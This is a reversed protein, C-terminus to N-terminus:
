EVTTMGCTANQEIIEDLKHAVDIAFRLCDQKSDEVRFRKGRIEYPRFRINPRASDVELMIISMDKSAKKVYEDTTVKFLTRQGSVSNFALPVEDVVVRYGSIESYSLVPICYSPWPGKFFLRHDDDFRLDAFAATETFEEIRAVIEPDAIHYRAVEEATPNDFTANVPVCYQCVFGGSIKVTGERRGCVLCTKDAPEDKKRKFLM